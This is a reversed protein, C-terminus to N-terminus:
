ADAVSSERAITAAVLAGDAAIARADFATGTLEGVAYVGENIRGSETCVVFGRPEHVVRAGAQQALEYAPSRPADLLVLDAAHETEKGAGDRVVVAKARTTGHVRVPEGRLLTVTARDSPAAKAFSEGFPGGFPPVIVVVRRGPLVDHALLIGGARASMVGPVDNGEFALAGDHAGSAFVLTRMELVEAGEPGAVLLDRGFVGGAVTSCRLRVRRGAVHDMFAARIEDFARADSSALALLGGGPAIQDDLVEVTRGADALRSAIVMGAPGAGVVVADVRRRAAPRPPEVETPMRGLGAVRRAFAQMVTQVGAIGAFLEHHNMGDPFFWDTMRLLDVERPGLRNQSVVATSEEASVLCTMVNPTDNVRALCGDCAARMCSPGRPRHFKPSRAITLKGAALLAAAIPEGREALVREGDLTITVPNRLPALRGPSM